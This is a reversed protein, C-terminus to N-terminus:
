ENTRGEQKAPAAAYLKTRYPFKQIDVLAVLEREGFAEPDGHASVIEAAAIDQMEASIARVKEAAAKLGKAIGAEFAAWDALGLCDGVHYSVELKEIEDAISPRSQVFKECCELTYAEPSGVHVPKGCCVPEAAPMAAELEDALAGINRM